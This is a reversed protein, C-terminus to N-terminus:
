MQKSRGSVPLLLTPKGAHAAGPLPAPYDRSFELSNHSELFAGRPLVVPAKGRDPRTWLILVTGVVAHSMWSDCAQLCVMSATSM